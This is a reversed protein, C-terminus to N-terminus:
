ETRPAYVHIYMNRKCLPFQLTQYVTRYLELVPIRIGMRTVHERILFYKWSLLITELDPFGGHTEQDPFLTVHDLTELDPFGVLTAQNPFLTVHDLTELDPFRSLTVQDPFMTM